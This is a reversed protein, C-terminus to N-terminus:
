YELARSVSSPFGGVLPPSHSKEFLLHTMAHKKGHQLGTIYLIDGTKMNSMVLHEAHKMRQYASM